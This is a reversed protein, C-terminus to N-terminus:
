AAIARSLEAESGVITYLRDLKLMQLQEALRPRLGFVVTSAGRQRATNRADICMGLGMSTMLEVDRLDLVLSRLGRGLGDIAENLTSALLTAERERVIPGKPRITLVGRVFQIAGFPTNRAFPPSLRLLM